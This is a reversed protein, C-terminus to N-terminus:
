LTQRHEVRRVLESPKIGLGRALLFVTDLSPSNIGRELMSVYTRHRGCEHALAEQSLGAALRLERLVEGFAQPTSKRSSPM